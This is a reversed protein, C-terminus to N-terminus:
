CTVPDTCYVIAILSATQPSNSATDYVYFTGTFEGTGCCSPDFQVVLECSSNAALSSGCGNSLISFGGSGVISESQITIRSTTTNYLTVPRNCPPCATATCPPVYCDAIRVTTPSLYVSGSESVGNSVLWFAVALPLLFVLRKM